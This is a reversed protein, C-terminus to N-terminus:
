EPLDGVILSNEGDQNLFVKFGFAKGRINAFHTTARGFTGKNNHVEIQLKSLLKGDRKLQIYYLNIGKKEVAHRISDLDATSMDREFHVEVLTDTIIVKPKKYNPKCSIFFFSLLFLTTTFWICHQM